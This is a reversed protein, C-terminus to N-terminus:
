EASNLFTLCCQGHCETLSHQRSCRILPGARPQAGQTADKPFSYRDQTTKNTNHCRLILITRENHTARRPSGTGGGQREKSQRWPQDQTVAGGRWGCGAGRRGQKQQTTNTEAADRADLHRAGGVTHVESEGVGIVPWRFHGAPPGIM